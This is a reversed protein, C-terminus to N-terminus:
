RLVFKTVRCHNQMFEVRRFLIDAELDAGQSEQSHDLQEASESRLDVPQGDM